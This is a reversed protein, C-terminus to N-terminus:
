PVLREPDRPFLTSERVNPLDLLQMTLREIGISFGGHPPVGFRFFQTFWELLKVDMKKEKANKMIQEYRHEREGGSSLEIGKYELDVSRAWRPDSDYRMVYFPKKKFPFKNLFYFDHNYKEKVYKGLLKEGESDVDDEFEVKKGMKALIAYVEPFTLVPFPTKPVKITKGLLKLERKCDKAVKKIAAVVVNEELRMTDYEDTLYAMEVAITRHECLHRITHSLEARWSPGMDVVKEFGSAIALQRHLQPDQRLFAKKNFFPLEFMESGSESPVGMLSPTFLFTFGNKYLYELAGEILKSEVKFVARREESRLDVCRWDLRKSQDTEIGKGIFEIPLAEAKSLIEFSTVKVENKFQKSKGTQVTGEVAIVSERSISKLDDDTVVLQALGDRDRLLLFALKGLNRVEQVWGALTVQKGAKAKEIQATTIRKHLEIAM